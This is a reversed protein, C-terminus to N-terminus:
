LAEFCDDNGSAERVAVVQSTARHGRSGRYHIFDCPESLFTPRYGAKAVAKLNEALRANQWPREHAIAQLLKEAAVDVQLCYVLFAEPGLPNVVDEAYWDGM